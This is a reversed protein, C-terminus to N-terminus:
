KKPKQKRFNLTRKYPGVGQPAAPKKVVVQAPRILREGHLYGPRALM